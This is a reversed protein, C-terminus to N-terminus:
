RNTRQSFHLYGSGAVGGPDEMFGSGSIFVDKPITFSPINVMPSIPPVYPPPQYYPWMPIPYYPQPQWPIPTYPQYRPYLPYYIRNPDAGVFEQSNM